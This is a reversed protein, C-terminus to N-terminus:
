MSMEGANDKKRSFMKSLAEMLGKLMKSLKESVEKLDEDENDKHKELSDSIESSSKLSDDLTKLDEKSLKDGHNERMDMAAEYKSSFSDIDSKLNNKIVSLENPSLQNGNEDKKTAVAEIGKKISDTANLLGESQNRVHRSIEQFSKKTDKSVNPFLRKKKQEGKLEKNTKDRNRYANINYKYADGLAVFPLKLIGLTLAAVGFVDTNINPNIQPKNADAKADVKALKEKNAKAIAEAKKIKENQEEDIAEQEIDKHEDNSDEPSKTTDSAKDDPIDNKLDDGADINEEGTLESENDIEGINVKEIVHSGDDENYHFNYGLNAFKEKLRPLVNKIETPSTLETFQRELDKAKIERIVDIREELDSFSVSDIKNMVILLDNINSIEKDKDQGHLVDLTKDMFKKNFNENIGLTNLDAYFDRYKVKSDDGDLLQNVFQNLVSSFLTNREKDSLLGEPKTDTADSM